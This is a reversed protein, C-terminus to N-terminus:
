ANKGGENDWRQEAQEGERALRALVLSPRVRVRRVSDQDRASAAAYDWFAGTGSPRPPPPPAIRLPKV